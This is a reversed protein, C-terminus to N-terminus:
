EGHDGGRERLEADIETVLDRCRNAVDGYDRGDAWIVDGARPGFLGGQPATVVEVATAERLDDLLRRLRHYDPAREGM